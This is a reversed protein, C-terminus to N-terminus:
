DYNHWIRTFRMANTMHWVIDPQECPGAQGDIRDLKGSIKNSLRDDAFHPSAPNAAANHFRLCVGWAIRAPMSVASLRCPVAGQEQAPPKSVNVEDVPRRVHEIDRSFLWPDACSHQQARQLRKLSDVQHLPSSLVSLSVSRALPGPRSAAANCISWRSSPTSRHASPGSQSPVPIRSVASMPVLLRMPM